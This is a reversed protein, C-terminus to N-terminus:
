VVTGLPAFLTWLPGVGPSTPCCDDFGSRKDRTVTPRFVASTPRSRASNARCRRCCVTKISTRCRGLDALKPGSDALSSVLSPDIGVTTPRVAGCEARIRGVKSRHRGLTPRLRAVDAPAQGPMPWVGVLDRDPKPRSRGLEAWLQAVGRPPPVLTAKSRQNLSTACLRLCHRSLEPDAGGGCNPKAMPRHPTTGRRERPTFRRVGAANHHMWPVGLHM